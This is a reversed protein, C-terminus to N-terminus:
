KKGRKKVESTCTELDLEHQKVQESTYGKIPRVHGSMSKLRKAKLEESNFLHSVADGKDSAAKNMVAVNGNDPLSDRRGIASYGIQHKSRPNVPNVPGATTPLVPQEEVPEAETAGVHKKVADVSRGLQEAIDKESLGQASLQGIQVIEDASIRGRKQTGKVVKTESSM